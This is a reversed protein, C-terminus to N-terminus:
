SHCQEIQDELDKIQEELGDREEKMSCLPCYFGDYVVMCDRDHECSNM